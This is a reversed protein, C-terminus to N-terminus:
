STEDEELNLYSADVDANHVDGAKIEEHQTVNNVVVNASNLAPELERKLYDSIFVEKNILLLMQMINMKLKKVDHLSALDFLNRGQHDQDNAFELLRNFIIEKSSDMLPDRCRVCLDEDFAM